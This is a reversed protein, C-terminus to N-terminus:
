GRLKRNRKLENYADQLLNKASQRSTIQAGYFNFTVNGGGLGSGAMALTQRRNLVWEGAHGYFWGDTALSGGSGYARGGGPRGGGGPFPNSSPPTGGGPEEGSAPPPTPVSPFTHGRIEADAADLIGKVGARVEAELDPVKTGWGAEFWTVFDQGRQKWDPEYKALLALIGDKGGVAGDMVMKVAEAHLNADSLRTAYDANISDTIEQNRTEVTQILGDYYSQEKALRTEIAQRQAENETQIKADEDEYQRQRIERAKEAAARIDDIQKQLAERKQERVLDAQERAAEYELQNINRQIRAREETDTELVLKARLDSLEQNREKERRARDEAEAQDDLADMQAQIASVQADTAAGYGAEDDERKRRLRKEEAAVTKDFADLEKRGAEEAARARERYGQVLLDAVKRQQSVIADREDETRRRIADVLADGLRNAIDRQKQAAEQAAQETEAAAQQEADITRQAADEHAQATAKTADAERKKASALNYIVTIVGAVAMALLVYPNAAALANFVAQAQSLKKVADVLQLVKVILLLVTGGALALGGAFAVTQIVTDRLPSPLRNLWGVFGAVLNSAAEVAPALASGIALKAGLFAQSARKTAAEADGLRKAADNALVGGLREAEDAYKQIGDRGLALVPVLDAGSRGFIKQAVASRETENTMQSFRDAVDLLVDNADRLNGNSDTVSIGLAAYADAADQSGKTSDYMTRTMIRLGTSVAEMPVDVQYAAYGLKSLQETAVGTIISVKEMDSAYDMASKLALGLAGVVAAGAVALAKGVKDLSATMQKSTKDVKDAAEKTGKDLGENDTTIEVVVKGAETKWSAAM